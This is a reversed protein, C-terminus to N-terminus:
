HTVRVGSSRERAVFLTVTNYARSRATVMEGSMGHDTANNMIPRHYFPIRNELLFHENKNARASQRARGRGDREFKRWIRFAINSRGIAAGLSPLRWLTLTPERSRASEERKRKLSSVPM